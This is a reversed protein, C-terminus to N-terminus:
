SRIAKVTYADLLAKPTLRHHSLLGQVMEATVESISSKVAHVFARIAERFRALGDATMIRAGQPPTAAHEFVNSPHILVPVNACDTGYRDVFWNVSGALQNAYHKSVKEVVAGSKCEVVFYELNGVAWLIDPGKKFELEPRQSRFGLFGALEHMAAEFESANDPAFKFDDLLGNIQLVLENARKAFARVRWVVNKAQILNKSELRDYDIGELPKTVRRNRQIASKLIKQAEVGDRLQTYEALQWRLWGTTADSAKNIEADHVAKQLAAECDKHSRIAAAQFAARQAIAISRVSGKAPYSM